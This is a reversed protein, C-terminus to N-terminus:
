GSAAVPDLRVFTSDMLRVSAIRGDALRQFTVNEASFSSGPEPTFVDPDATPALTLRWAATDPTTITLNGDRWELRLMWGGLGPRAYIGLLPRYHSPAPQPAEIVPPAARVMTRAISALDVGLEASGSTGNILVIAGVETGPDFCVTSTFGPLGGSHQIWIVDDRRNSGWAIGWATTWNDDALYRAKHMERLSAAALVPSDAPPNKYAHLQFSVWRGLDELCSWLGGEAWVPSMVPAPDLADSLARWDYGTARRDLLTAPLPDFCTASMSLPDLISEQLYRPYPTGSVRTVIEGLLQYALDSYGHRANAPFALVIDGAHALAMGPEGQYAPVSWDTGPPEAALGSEHCLMRRITVTEIPAFPSVAGRLEPLYDVAPDDLALRGADRLQMIATGTLTKTISAIRYLTGARAPKLTDTDAFGVAASWALEQRHVVGAAAGPLRNEKVFSALKAELESAGAAILGAV